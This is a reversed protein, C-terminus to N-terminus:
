ELWIMIPPTEESLGVAVEEPNLSPFAFHFLRGESFIFFGRSDLQWFVASVSTELLTQVLLTQLPANVPPQYLRAGEWEGAANGWAILWNGSPSLSAGGEGPLFLGAGEPPFGFVGSPGATIFLGGPEWRLQNFDGARILEPTPSAPQIGYVGATRGTEAAAAPDIVLALLKSEPDFAAQAFPNDFIINSKPSDVNM